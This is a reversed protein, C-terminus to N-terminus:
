SDGDVYEFCLGYVDLSDSYKFTVRINSYVDSSLLYTDWGGVQGIPEPISMPGQSDLPEGFEKRVDSQAWGMKFLAPLEGSYEFIDSVDDLLHVHLTEYILTDVKFELYVGVEVEVSLWEIAVYNEARPNQLDIGEVHIQHRHQGLCKILADLQAAKM